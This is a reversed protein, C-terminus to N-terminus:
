KNLRKLMAKKKQLMDQKKLGARKKIINNLHLNKTMWKVEFVKKKKLNVTKDRMWKEDSKWINITKIMENMDEKIQGIDFEHIQEEDWSCYEFYHQRCEEIKNLTMLVFHFDLSSSITKTLLFSILENKAGEGTVLLNLDELINRNKYLLQMLRIDKILDQNNM